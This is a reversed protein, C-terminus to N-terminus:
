LLRHSHVLSHKSWHLVTLFPRYGYTRKWYQEKLEQSTSLQERDAKDEPTKVWFELETASTIQIEDIEEVSDVGNIYNFVYPHESLLQLLRTKFHEIANRLIARAGVETKDNHILFSPIRLTGVPLGSKQDINDFNYDVYWNVSKDPVLVVKANNLDAIKPLDVSSGDTQVGHTLMAEMDDLFLRMPIREDTDNGAIDLGVFSVFQVEPHGQLIKAIEEKDHCAAPINFLMADLNFDLM